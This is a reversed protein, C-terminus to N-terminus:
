GCDRRSGQADHRDGAAGSGREIMVVRPKGDATAPGEATFASNLWFWGAGAAVAAVIVLSFLIGFLKGL